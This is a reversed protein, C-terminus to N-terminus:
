SVVYLSVVSKPVETGPSAPNVWRTGGTPVYSVERHANVNKLSIYGQSLLELRPTIWEKKKLLSCDAM